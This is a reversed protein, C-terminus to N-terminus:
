RVQAGHRRLGRELVGLITFLSILSLLKIIVILLKIVPSITSDFNSISTQILIARMSVYLQPNTQLCHFEKMSNSPNPPM